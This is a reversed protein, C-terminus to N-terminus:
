AFAVSLLLWLSVYLVFATIVGALVDDAMVGLGGGVERDLWGVPGPKAIDLLRFLAFAILVLWWTAPLLALALWMGVVEDAVIQPADKVGYRACIRSSCWWGIVFYLVCIGLQVPSSLHSLVFWWFLAAALSGWTGPAPKLYGIGFASAFLVDPQRLDRLELASTTTGATSM